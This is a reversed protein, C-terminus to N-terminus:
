FGSLNELFAAADSLHSCSGLYFVALALHQYFICFKYIIFAARKLRIPKESKCYSEFIGSGYISSCNYGLELSFSSLTLTSCTELQCIALIYRHSLFTVEYYLFNAAELKASSDSLFLSSSFNYSNLSIVTYGLM